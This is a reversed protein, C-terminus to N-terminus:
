WTFFILIVSRPVLFNAGGALKCGRRLHAGCVLEIDLYPAPRADVCQWALQLKPGCRRCLHAGSGDHTGHGQVEGGQQPSSQCQWTDRPGLSQRGSLLAGVGGRMGCSRVEGGQRPPSRRQWTAGAEGGWSSLESAVMYGVAGLPSHVMPIFFPRAAGRVCSPEYTDLAHDRTISAGALCASMDSCNLEVTCCLGLQGTRSM